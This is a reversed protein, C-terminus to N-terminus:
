PLAARGFDCTPSGAQQDFTPTRGPCPLAEEIWAGQASNKQLM